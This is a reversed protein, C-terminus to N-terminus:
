TMDPIESSFCPLKYLEDAKPPEITRGHADICGGDTLVGIVTAQIGAGRLVGCLKEGDDCVILLSGSGILRLPDIGLAACVTRTADLVPIADTDIVVGTNARYALEWAAGLVGGETVDHMVVAGNQWALRGEAVISIRDKLLACAALTEHLIAAGTDRALMEALITTGELGATKTMVIQQGRRAGRDNVSRPRRAVVTAATVPRTVSDTVETHGGLIDVGAVTAAHALDDAMRGIEEETCSPPVLLTVMLGIPEAGACVADNCNVHVTLAGLQGIGASTIPDCSLTVLDDSVDVLACDEGIAPHTLTEPRMNRFKRLILRELEDNDLKGIRM